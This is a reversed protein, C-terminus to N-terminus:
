VKDPTTGAGQGRKEPQHPHRQQGITPGDYFKLSTLSFLIRAACPDFAVMVSASILNGGRSVMSKSTTIAPAPGAPRAAAIRRLCSLGSTETTTTSFPPSSPAWIKDPATM